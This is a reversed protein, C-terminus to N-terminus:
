AKLFIGVKGAEQLWNLECSLNIVRMDIAYMDIAYMDIVHM